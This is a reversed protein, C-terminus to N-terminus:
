AKLADADWQISTQQWSSKRVQVVAVCERCAVPQMPADILRTDTILAM